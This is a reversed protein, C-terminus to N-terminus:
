ADTQAAAPRGSETKSIRGSRSISTLWAVTASRFHASLLQMREPVEVQMDREAPVLAAVAVEVGVGAHVAQHRVVDVSQLTLQDKRAFPKRELLELGNASMQM